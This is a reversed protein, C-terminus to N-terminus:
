QYFALVDIIENYLKKLRMQNLNIFEETDEFHCCGGHQHQDKKTCVNTIQM